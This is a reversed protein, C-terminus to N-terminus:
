ELAFKAVLELDFCLPHNHVLSPNYTCSVLERALLTEDPHLIDIWKEANDLSPGSENKQRMIDFDHMASLLVHVACEQNKEMLEYKVDYNGELYITTPDECIDDM